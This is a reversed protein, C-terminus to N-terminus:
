RVTESAAQVGGLDPPARLHDQPPKRHARPPLMTPLRSLRPRAHPPLRPLRTRAQPPLRPPPLAAAEVARWPRDAFADTLWRGVPGPVRRDPYGLVLQGLDAQLRDTVERLVERDARLGTTPIPTGVRVRVVKGFALWRTGNIALPLIPAGARIAFFAAGENLPLVVDEDETLRGEGAIALVRGAKLVAM